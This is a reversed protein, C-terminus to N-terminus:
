LSKFCEGIKSINKVFNMHSKEKEMVALVTRKEGLPAFVYKLNDNRETVNCQVNGLDDDFDKTMKTALATEMFLMEKKKDNMDLFEENFEHSPRGNKNIICAYKLSPEKQIVRKKFMERIKMSDEYTTSM